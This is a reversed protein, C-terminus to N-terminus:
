VWLVGEHTLFGQVRFGDERADGLISALAGVFKAHHADEFDPLVGTLSVDINTEQARLHSRFELLLQGGAHTRLGRVHLKSRAGVFTGPVDQGRGGAVGARHVSRRLTTRLDFTRDEHARLAHDDRVRLM